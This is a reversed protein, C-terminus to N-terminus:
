PQKQFHKCTTLLWVHTLVITILDVTVDITKEDVERVARSIPRFFAFYMYNLKSCM